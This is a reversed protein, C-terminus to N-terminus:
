KAGSVTAAPLRNLERRIGAIDSENRAISAKLEATRELYKQHNRFEPGIKEPEGNNYEKLLEADGAKYRAELVSYFDSSTAGPDKLSRTISRLDEIRAKGDWLALKVAMRAVIPLQGNSGPPQNADPKLCENMRRVLLDSVSPNARSRLIEPGFIRVINAVHYLASQYDLLAVDIAATEERVGPPVPLKEPPNNPDYNEIRPYKIRLAEILRARFNVVYWTTNACLLVVADDDHALSSARKFM